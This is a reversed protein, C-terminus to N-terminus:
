ALLFRQFLTPRRRLLLESFKAGGIAAVVFTPEVALAFAM